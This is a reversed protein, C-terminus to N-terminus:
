FEDLYGHLAALFQLGGEIHEIHDGLAPCSRSLDRQVVAGLKSAPREILPGIFAAHTQAEDLGALGDLVGEDLAEVAAQPVLAEVLVPEQSKNVGPLDNFFPPDVVVLSPGVTCEPGKCRQLERPELLVSLDILWRRDAHM